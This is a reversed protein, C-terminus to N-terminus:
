PQAAAAPPSEHAYHSNTLMVISGLVLLLALAGLVLGTIGARKDEPLPAAM